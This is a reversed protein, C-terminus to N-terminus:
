TKNGGEAPVFFGPQIRVQRDKLDDAVKPGYCTWLMGMSLESKGNEAMAAFVADKVSRAVEIKTCDFAYEGDPSYGALLASQGFLDPIEGIPEDEPLTVIVDKQKM